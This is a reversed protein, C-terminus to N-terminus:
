QAAASAEPDPEDTADSADSGAAAAHMQVWDQESAPQLMGAYTKLTDLTLNAGDLEVAHGPAPEFIVFMNTDGADAGTLTGWAAKHGNIDGTSQQADDGAVEKVVDDFNASYGSVMVYPATSEDQGGADQYQASWALGPVEQLDEVTTPDDARAADTIQWNDGPVKAPFVEYAAGTGTPGPTADPSPQLSADVSAADPPSAAASGASGCGSLGLVLAGFAACAAVGRTTRSMDFMRCRIM